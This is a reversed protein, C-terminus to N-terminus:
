SNDYYYYLKHNDTDYIAITINYSSRNMLSTDEYKNIAENNRDEFFYYGNKIVPISMHQNYLYNNINESLPLCKWNQNKDIVVSLDNEHFDIVVYKNGDGFWGITTISEVIKGRSVDVGISDYIKDHESKYSTVVMLISILLFSVITILIKKM